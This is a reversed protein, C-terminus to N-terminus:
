IKTLLRRLLVVVEKQRFSSASYDDQMQQMKLSQYLTARQAALALQLVESNALFAPGAGWKEAVAVSTQPTELPKATVEGYKFQTELGKADGL